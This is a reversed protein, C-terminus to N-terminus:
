AKGKKSGGAKETSYGDPLIFEYYNAIIIKSTPYIAIQEHPRIRKGDVTIGNKSNLDMIFSYDNKITIQCHKRSFDDLPIVFDNDTARGITVVEKDTDHTYMEDLARIRLKM